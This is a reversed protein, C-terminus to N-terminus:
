QEDKAAASAGVTDPPMYRLYADLAERSHIRALAELAQCDRREMAEIMAHHQEQSRAIRPVLVGDFYFRRLRDWASFARGTVEQLMAMGTTRAIALHFETNLDGWRQYAEAAIERDLQEVIGRLGALDDPTMREAATRMAVMEIGELVTFTDLVSARTIPAVIAGAHPVIAILGESQLLQLTERVPILSMGLQRAIDDIILRKGPPLECRMIARRLVHYAYQQKTQFSMGNTSLATPQPRREALRGNMIGGMERIALWQHRRIM